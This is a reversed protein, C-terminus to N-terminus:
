YQNGFLELSKREFFARTTEGNVLEQQIPDWDYVYGEPDESEVGPRFPGIRPDIFAVTTTRMKETQVVVRHESANVSPLLKQLPYGFNIVLYGEELHLPKWEGDIKAELGPEVADLVTIYGWDKHAGVGMPKAAYQPDYCNFVLFHSGEAESSGATAKFWLSEPIDYLKLIARLVMVGVDNLQHGLEQLELPYNPPGNTEQGGMHCKDWYDRELSMRISQNLDSQLYGNVQTSDLIGFTNYRSDKTFTRAFTRGLELDLIYPAKIRFFGVKMAEQFDDNSPFLVEGNDIRATVMQYTASAECTVAIILVIALFSKLGM